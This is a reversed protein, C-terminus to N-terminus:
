AAPAANPLKFFEHKPKTAISLLGLSKAVIAFCHIYVNDFRTKGIHNLFVAGYLIFEGLSSVADWCANRKEQPTLAEDALKRVAEYFKLGFASCVLGIVWSSLRFNNVWQLGPYQGIRAAWKATDLIKWEQFCVAVTGWDVVMWNLNMIRETLPAKRMWYAVHYDENEKKLDTLEVGKIQDLTIQLFGYQNFEAATEKELRTKLVKKFDELNYYADGYKLMQNLQANLKAKLFERLQAKENPLVGIQANFYEVLDDLIINENLNNANVPVFIDRLHNLFRYFDHMNATALVFSFSALSAAQSSRIIILQLAANAVQCVKQFFNTNDRLEKSKLVIFIYARQTARCYNKVEQSLHHFAGTIM